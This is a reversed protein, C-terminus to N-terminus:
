GYGWNMQKVYILILASGIMPFRQDIGWNGQPSRM